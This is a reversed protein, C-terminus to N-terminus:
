YRTVGNDGLYEVSYATGPALEKTFKRAAAEAKERSHWSSKVESYEHGDSGAWRVVAFHKPM